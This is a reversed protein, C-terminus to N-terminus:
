PGAPGSEFDEDEDEAHDDEPKDDLDYIPHIGNMEMEFDFGDINFSITMDHRLGHTDGDLFYEIQVGNDKQFDQFSQKVEKFKRYAKVYAEYFSREAEERSEFRHSRTKARLEKKEVRGFREVSTNVGYFTQLPRIDSM